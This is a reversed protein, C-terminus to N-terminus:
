RTLSLFVYWTRRLNINKFTRTFLRGYGAGAKAEDGVSRDVSGGAGGEGGRGGGGGRGRGGGGGSWGGGGSGGGGGGEEEGGGTEVLLRAVGHGQENFVSRRLVPSRAMETMVLMLADRHNLDPMMEELRPACFYRFTLSAAPTGSTRPHEPEANADDAEDTDTADTADTANTADTADTDWLGMFLDVMYRVRYDGPALARAARRWNRLVAEIVAQEEARIEPQPAGGSSEVVVAEQGSYRGHLLTARENFTFVIRYAGILHGM